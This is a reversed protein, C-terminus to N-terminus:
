GRREEVGRGRGEIKGKETETSHLLCALCLRM